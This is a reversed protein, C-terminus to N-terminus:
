KLHSFSLILNATQEDYNRENLLSRLEQKSKIEGPINQGGNSHLYKIYKPDDIVSNYFNTNEYISQEYQNHIVIAGSLDANLLKAGSLDANLLYAGSLDANLLNAKLLKADFVNAKSLKAGSLNAYTLNADLLKVGSLDAHTLDANSLDANFLKAESLTARSLNAKSLKAGSLDAHTLDAGSLNAYTLNADLLKAGSLDAHTLDANSLDAHTLDANFLFATRLKISNLKLSTLDEYPLHILYQYHYDLLNFETVKENRLLELQKENNITFSTERKNPLSTEEVVRLYKEIRDIKILTPASKRLFILLDEDDLEVLKRYIELITDLISSKKKQVKYGIKIKLEELTLVKRESSGKEYSLIFDKLFEVRNKYPILLKLFTLWGSGRFYFAQVAIIKEIDKISQKYIYRSLIISNIFRKIDRPNPQAANIILETNTENLIEKVDPKPIGTSSIMNRITNSLDPANWVPIPVPLQVIKQLYHMGDIKSKEGYKTKIIPDITAPDIGLVYIIGEIDFFTKISELLELARDPTCRDLDDIFIVIKFDDYKKSHNERIKRLEEKLHDTIHEYFYIRKDGSWFSGDSKYDDLIKGIDFQAEGSVAGLNFGVKPKTNRIVAGGIKSFQKEIRRLIKKKETDNSNLITNNLSLIITRILPVMASYEEKEYRWADFWITQVNDSYNKDVEEKIMQMLTTKGTGWGGYIGVTFRPTSKKNVILKSLQMAYKRFDSADTTPADAIISISNDLTINDTKEENENNTQIGEV